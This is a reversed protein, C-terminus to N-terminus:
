TLKGLIEVVSTINIQMTITNPTAMDIFLSNAERQHTGM